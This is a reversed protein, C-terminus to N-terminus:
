AMQKTLESIINDPNSIYKRIAHVVHKVTGEPVDLEKAVEFIKYGEVVHLRFIETQQEKFKSKITYVVDKLQQRPYYTNNVVFMSHKDWRLSDIDEIRYKKKRFNTIAINRAITFAWGKFDKEDGKFLHKKDWIKELVESELLDAEERRKLLMYCCKRVHKIQFGIEKEINFASTM